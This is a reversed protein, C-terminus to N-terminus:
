AKGHSYALRHLDIRGGELPTIVRAQYERRLREGLASISAAEGHVLVVPPRREFHRYWNVLGDSDAHASFGGITHVRAAVRISEGWLQVEEAGDVLARGLTGYAQFGVIIIHCNRRWLNHKLHHKIRGGTCMGSGAIVVAGSRIRNVAMSQLTTRTFRLNPLEFLAGNEKGLRLSERDYLDRHRAYINTAEIALPSDLFINWQAMDWAQYNKAFAYLIEQTRGVAFAPILVNGKDRRCTQLVEGLEEWTEAWPRHLRDGYTSEMFVLDAENLVRPDRLIPAGRHGLDGSFVLKRQQGNEQLWLEVIASGLIHGADQMRLRVGPFLEREIGYDLVRFRKLSAGAERQTYLPEIEPLGKRERKRNSWEAEKENLYGADKFLIRCLDRTARHAYVPGKFGGKILLPLRGSHDLHAHTLIVADIRAPDFPFPQRNKDEIERPGQFLGCEVLIRRGAVQLLFCSGTVQQAAGFIRIDVGVNYAKAQPM